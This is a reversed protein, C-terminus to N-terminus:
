YVVCLVPFTIHLQNPRFRVGDPINLQTDTSSRESMISAPESVSDSTSEYCHYTSRCQASGDENEHAVFYVLSPMLRKWRHSRLRSSPVRRTLFLCNEGCSILLSLKTRGTDFIHHRRYLLSCLTFSTQVPRINCTNEFDDVQNELLM